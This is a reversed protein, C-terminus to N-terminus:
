DGSALRLADTMRWRKHAPSPSPRQQWCANVQCRHEQKYLSHETAWRNHEGLTQSSPNFARCQTVRCGAHSSSPRCKCLHLSLAFLDQNIFSMQWEDNLSATSISLLTVLLWGPVGTALLCFLVAIYLCFMCPNPECHMCIINVTSMNGHGSHVLTRQIDVM